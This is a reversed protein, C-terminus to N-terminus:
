VKIYNLNKKYYRITIRLGNLLLKKPKWNLCKYTKKIDSYLKLPEDKRLLIKGFIPSGKKVLKQISRIIKKVKIPTGSGANFITNYVKKNQICEIVLNVFDDIYLFDRTQNGNSCPFNENKLCNIITNPILRNNTQGPGYILFPRLIIYKLKKEKSIKILYNSAKLKSIGYISKLKKINIKKNESIPSKSFGYEVSSGIQIFKKIKKEVAFDILNKCGRFHTEFTKKKEHHNIHGALNIIYDIKFKNLKKFLLNRNSVNLNLKKIGNKKNKKNLSLSIIDWGKKKCRDILHSGIFGTGGTILVTVKKL